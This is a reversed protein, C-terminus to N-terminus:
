LGPPRLCSAARSRRRGRARPRPGTRRPTASRGRRPGRGRPPRRRRPAPSRRPRSRAWRRRECGSGAAATASASSARPSTSRTSSSISPATGKAASVIARQSAAAGPAQKRTVDRSGSPIAPSATKSSPGSGSGASPASAAPSATSRKTIHVCRARGAYVSDASSAGKTAASTRSSSPSGSAMSSHAGRIATMPARASSWRMVLRKSRSRRLAARGPSRCAVSAAAMSAENEDSDGSSCLARACHATNRPPKVSSAASPTTSTVAGARPGPGAAEADEAPARPEPGRAPM